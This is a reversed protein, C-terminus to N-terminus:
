LNRLFSIIDSCLKKIGYNKMTSILYCKTEPKLKSINHTIKKITENNSILDTKNFILWSPKKILKTNYYKLENHIIQINEIPNSNSLSKIDIFYLIIKCPELHKLFHIGLGAGKHSGKILAPIEIVSFNDNNSDNNIHVFGINPTLTTFPYYAIKPRTTSIKDLFTSKGTNPLGVIGIDAKLTLELKIKRKEGEKKNKKNKITSVYFDKRLKSYNNKSDHIGGKAIILSQKHYLLKGIIKKTDLDSVITGIPVQIITDKGKKGTCGRTKGDEGRNGNFIKKKFFKKLTDIRKDALLYINGGNGGNSNNKKYDKNKQKKNFFNTYSKGSDGAQVTINVEDNYKM